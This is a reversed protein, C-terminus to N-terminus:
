KSAQKGLWTLVRASMLVPVARELIAMQEKYLGPLDKHKSLFEDLKSPILATLKEIRQEASDNSTNDLIM